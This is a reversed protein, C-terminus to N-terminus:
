TSGQVVVKSTSAPLIFAATAVTVRLQRLLIDGSVPHRYSIQWVM